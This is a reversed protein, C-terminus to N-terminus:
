KAKLLVAMRGAYTGDIAEDMKGRNPSPFANAVYRLTLTNNCSKSHVNKYEKFKQHLKWGTVKQVLLAQEM